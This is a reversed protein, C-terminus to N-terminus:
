RADRKQRRADLRDSSQLNYGLWARKRLGRPQAQLHPGVHRELNELQQAEIGLGHLSLRADFVQRDRAARPFLSRAWPFTIESLWVRSGMKAPTLCRALSNADNIRPLRRPRPSAPAVTKALRSTACCFGIRPHLAASEQLWGRPKEVRVPFAPPLTRKPTPTRQPGPMLKRTTVGLKLEGVGSGVGLRSARVNRRCPTESKGGCGVEVGTGFGGADLSHSRGRHESLSCAASLTSGSPVPEECLRRPELDFLLSSESTFFDSM